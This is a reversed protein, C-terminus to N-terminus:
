KIKKLNVKIQQLMKVTDIIDDIRMGEHINSRLKTSALIHQFTNYRHCLMALFQTLSIFAFFALHLVGLPEIMVPQYYLSPIPIPIYLMDKLRDQALLIPFVFAIWLANLMFFAFTGRDRIDSLSQELKAKDQTDLKEVVLYKKILKKWFITEGEDLYRLDSFKLADEHNLWWMDQSEASEAKHSTFAALTSGYKAAAIIDTNASFQHEILKEVDIGNDIQKEITEKMEIRELAALIQLLLEDNSNSAGNELLEEIKSILENSGKAETLQRELEKIEHEDLNNKRQKQPVYVNDRVGWSTQNMNTLSYIIVLIYNTPICLFFLFAPKVCSFEFPHCIATLFFIVAMIVLFLVATTKWSGDVIRVITGVVVIMMLISYYTGLMAAFGIKIEEKCKQYCVILFLVAPLCALIFSGWMNIDTTANFADAIAITITAPTLIYSALFCIHYLIYLFSVNENLRITRRYNKLISITTGLTSPLWRRRQNFYDTISEPAHTYADSAACYEIKYGQEILLRSLFRDEGLDQLICSDPDSSKEAFCRMVNDDMLSSARYMSFCGPACLVCGLSHETTKQLWYSLAYEMKQFWIIPGSGIPHVRGCAAGVRKNKKMRDVLMLVAEPGFDVDGDMSLIYTNEAELLLKPGLVDKYYIHVEEGLAVHRKHKRRRPDEEVMKYLAQLRDECQGLLRYGLLYYMYMVMSWRKRKAVKKKDKLHVILLNGGPLKWTLRGGYPTPTKIPPTMKMGDIDHVLSAAKDMAGVLEKVFMNITKNDNDTKEFADDFFIHSEIEYFDPDLVNFYDKAKKRASQDIDMRMISKLIQIMEGKSEHWLTGCLYIKPTIDLQKDNDISSIGDVIDMDEFHEELKQKLHEKENRRRNLLLSQEILVSDYQPLVFLQETAALRKNEPFWAHLTIWIESLWWLGLGFILQWKLSGRNLTESCEWYMMDKIFEIRSLGSSCVAIYIGVTLPTALTLPLAFAVRQMCMKCSSKAFYYCLATSFIHVIFPVFPKITKWHDDMPNEPTTFDYPQTTPMFANNPVTLIGDLGMAMSSLASPVTNAFFEEDRKQINHIRSDAAFAPPMTVAPSEPGKPMNVFANEFKNSPLLVVSLTITIAIKWLSAGINAKSRVSQLHRKYTALPIKFCGLKIDRDVYNEWWSISTFFIAIPAEWSGKWTPKGPSPDSGIVLRESNTFPDGVDPTNADAAYGAKEIFATYETAMVVFFVSLQALVALFDIMIILTKGIMGHANKSFIM